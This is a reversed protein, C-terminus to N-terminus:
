GVEEVLLSREPRPRILSQAPISPDLWGAWIDRELVVFQRDHHRPQDDRGDDFEDANTM